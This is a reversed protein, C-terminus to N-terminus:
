QVITQAKHCAAELVCVVTKANHFINWHTLNIYKILVRDESQRSTLFIWVAASLFALLQRYCGFYDSVTNPFWSAKRKVHWNNCAQVGPSLGWAGFIYHIFPFANKFTLLIFDTRINGERGSFEDLTPETPFASDGLEGQCGSETCLCWCPPTCPLCHGGMFFIPEM